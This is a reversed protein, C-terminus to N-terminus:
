LDQEPFDPGFFERAPVAAGFRKNKDWMTYAYKFEDLFELFETGKQSQLYLNDEFSWLHGKMMKLHKLLEGVADWYKEDIVDNQKGKLQKVASRNFNLEITAHPKGQPDRLSAMDGAQAKGCHQMLQGEYGQCDDDRVHVWKWGGDLGLLEDADAYGPPEEKPYAKWLEYVLELGTPGEADRGGSEWKAIRASNRRLDARLKAHKEIDPMYERQILSAAGKLRRLDSVAGRHGAMGAAIIAAEYPHKPFSEEVFARAEPTYGLNKWAHETVESLLFVSTMHPLAM